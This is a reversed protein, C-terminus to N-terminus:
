PKHSMGEQFRFTFEHPISTSLIFLSLLQQLIVLIKFTKDVNEHKAVKICMAEGSLWSYIIQLTSVSHFPCINALNDLLFNLPLVKTQKNTQKIVKHKNKDEQIKERVKFSSLFNLDHLM